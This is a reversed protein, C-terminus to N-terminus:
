TVINETYSREKYVILSIQILLSSYLWTIASPHVKTVISGITLYLLIKQQSILDLTPGEKHTTSNVHRTLGHSNLISWFMRAAVYSTIDVHFNLDGTIIVDYLIIAIKDLYKSWGYFFISNRFGNKNLLLPVIYLVFNLQLRLQKFTICDM